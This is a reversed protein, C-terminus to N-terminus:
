IFLITDTRMPCFRNPYLLKVKWQHFHIKIFNSGEKKRADTTGCNNYQSPKINNAKPWICIYMYLLLSCISHPKETWDLSQPALLLGFGIYHPYLHWYKFKTKRKIGFICTNINMVGNDLLGFHHSMDNESNPTNISVSFSKEKIMMQLPWNWYEFIRFTGLITWLDFSM